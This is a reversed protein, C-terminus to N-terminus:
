QGVRRQRAADHVVRPHQLHRRRVRRPQEDGRRAELTLNASNGIGGGGTPGILERAHTSGRTVTLDSITANAQVDFIRDLRNGDIVTKDAGVGKITMPVLMNLDGHSADVGHGPDGDDRGVATLVPAITLKFHGAPLVIADGSGSNAEMVAARLTCTGDATACAGDGPSADPADATSNM